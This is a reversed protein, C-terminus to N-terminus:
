FFRNMREATKADVEGKYHNKEFLERGSSEGKLYKRMRKDSGKDETLHAFFLAKQDEASLLDVSKV